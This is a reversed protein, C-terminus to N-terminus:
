AGLYSEEVTAFVNLLNGAGVVVSLKDWANIAVDPTKVLATATTVSASPYLMTAAGLTTVTWSVNKRLHVVVTDATTNSANTIFISRVVGTTDAPCTYVDVAATSTPLATALAMVSKWSKVFGM